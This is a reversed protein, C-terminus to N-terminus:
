VSPLPPSALALWRADGQLWVKEPEMKKIFESRWFALAQELTLGISKLFLGYQLRGFHKLHHESRLADHLGSMCPPFSERSLQLPLLLLLSTTHAGWARHGSLARGLVMDIQSLKIKGAFQTGAM